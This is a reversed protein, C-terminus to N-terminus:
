INSEIVSSKISTNSNKKNVIVGGAIPRKLSGPLRLVGQCVLLKVRFAEKM